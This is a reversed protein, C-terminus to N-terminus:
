GRSNVFVALGALFFIRAARRCAPLQVAVVSADRKERIGVIDFTLLPAGDVFRSLFSIREPVVSRPHSLTAGVNGNQVIEDITLSVNHGSCAVYCSSIGDVIAANLGSVQTCWLLVLRYRQLVQCRSLRQM